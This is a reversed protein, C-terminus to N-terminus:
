LGFPSGKSSNGFSSSSAKLSNQVSFAFLSLWNYEPVPAKFVSKVLVPFLLLAPAISSPFLATMLYKM